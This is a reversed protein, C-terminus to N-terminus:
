TEGAEKQSRTLCVRVAELSYKGDRLDLFLAIKWIWTPTHPMKTVGFLLSVTFDICQFCM